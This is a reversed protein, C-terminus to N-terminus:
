ASEGGRKADIADFAVNLALRRDATLTLPAAANAADALARMRARVQRLGELTARCQNCGSIHIQAYWRAWGTLSDDGLAAVWKEMHRCPKFKLKSSTDSESM